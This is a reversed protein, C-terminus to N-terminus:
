EPPGHGSLIRAAGGIASRFANDFSVRHSQWRYPVGDITMGWDADWGLDADSWTLTGTVAVDADTSSLLADFVEWEVHAFGPSAIGANVLAAETPLEAPMGYQEAAGALAERMDRGKAGDAALVFGADGNRVAVVVLLAPRPGRWPEGGMAELAADIAEPEFTVTLDYPRDRSGQEDHVPIGEMRDRYSFAEVFDSARAGLAALGPDDALGPDGSVKVLVAALASAFGPGRTEEGQGTVFVTATYLDPVIEAPEAAAMLALWALPPALSRLRAPHM